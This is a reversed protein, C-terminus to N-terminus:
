TEVGKILSWANSKQNSAAVTSSRSHEFQEESM